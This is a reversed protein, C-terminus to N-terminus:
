RLAQELLALASCVEPTDLQAADHGNRAAYFAAVQRAPVAQAAAASQVLTAALWALAQQEAQLEAQQICARLAALHPADAPIARRAARLPRVVQARWDAVLADAAAIGPEAAPQGLRAAAYGLHLLVVVDVGLRDQLLLCAPAVGPRAYASLAYHWQPGDLPASTDSAPLAPM